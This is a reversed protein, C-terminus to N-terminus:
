QLYGHIDQRTVNSPRLDEEQIRRGAPKKLRSHRGPGSSSPPISTCEGIASVHLDPTLRSSLYDRLCTKPTNLDARVVCRCTKTCHRSRLELCNHLLSSAIKKPHSLKVSNM